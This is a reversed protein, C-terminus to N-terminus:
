VIVRSLGNKRWIFLVYMISVQMFGKKEIPYFFTVLKTKV